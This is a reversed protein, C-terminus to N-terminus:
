KNSQPSLYFNVDQLKNLDNLLRIWYQPLFYQWIIQKRQLLFGKGPTFSKLFMKKISLKNMNSKIIKNNKCTAWRILKPVFHQERRGKLIYIEMFINNIKRPHKDLIVLYCIQPTLTLSKTYSLSLNKSQGRHM